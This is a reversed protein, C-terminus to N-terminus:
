HSRNKQPFVWAPIALSIVALISFFANWPHTRWETPAIFWFQVMISQWVFIELSHRGLWRTIRFDLWSPAFHIIQAIVGTFCAFSLLRLWGLQHRSIWFEPPRAISFWGHTWGFFFLALLLTTLTIMRQMYLPTRQRLPKFFFGTGAGLFYVFQWAFPDFADAAAWSPLIQRSWARLGWQAAVWILASVALPWAQGKRMSPFVWSGILMFLAYLPLVDFWAPTHLLLFTFLTALFPHQAFAGFGSPIPLGTTYLILAFGLITLSHTIWVKQARKRLFRAQPDSEKKSLVAWASVLGSLFFFCEAASFFGFCQFLWQSFPRGMHDFTMQILLLGRLSDLVPLRM